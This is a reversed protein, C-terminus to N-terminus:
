DIKEYELRVIKSLGHIEEKIENVLLSFDPAPKEPRNIAFDVLENHWSLAKEAINNIAIKEEPTAWTEFKCAINVEIYDLIEQVFLTFDEVTVDVKLGAQARIVKNRVGVGKIVIESLDECIKSM